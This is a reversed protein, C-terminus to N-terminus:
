LFQKCRNDPRTLECAGPSFFPVRIEPGEVETLRSKVIFCSRCGHRVALSLSARLVAKVSTPLVFGSDPLNPETREDIEPSDREIMLCRSSSLCLVRPSRDSIEWGVASAAFPRFNGM